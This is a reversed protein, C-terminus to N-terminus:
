AHVIKFKKESQSTSKLKDARSDQIGAPIYKM